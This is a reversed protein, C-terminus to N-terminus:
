ADLKGSSKRRDKTRKREREWKRKYKEQRDGVAYKAMFEVLSIGFYKKICSYLWQSSKDLAHEQKEITDFNQTTEILIEKIDKGFQRELEIVAPPKFIFCKWSCYLVPKQLRKQFLFKDLKKGCAACFRSERTLPKIKELRGLLERTNNPYGSEM